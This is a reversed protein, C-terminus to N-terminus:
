EGTVSKVYLNGLLKIGTKVNELYKERLAVLGTLKDRKLDCIESEISVQAEILYGRLENIQEVTITTKM